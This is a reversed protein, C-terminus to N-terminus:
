DVKDGPNAATVAFVESPTTIGAHVKAAGSLRLPRMGAKLAERRLHQGDCNDVILNRLHEDLTMIEFIGVRGKFGTHRCEDCGVPVYATKPARAKHPATLAAWENPDLPGPVRCSPCLTRVLRQAAVGLLAARLLFPAVGLDLLRTISSPADNTHLTTLVLHGTMAAQLAVDATERDRIEGVMIIDPDQRMLTRIGSSFDVGISPQVAMQNLAADVMEIPDEITCVNLEPRALQKLTSYLTTTKGSGTPGTVIMVGNPASTLHQWQQLEEGALGLQDTTRVLVEPDFIRMVLKEGFTTPMTSLRLEVEHGHPPRTKVRGDQPRRREIVDMRGLSKLRSVMANMVGTKLSHVLHMVGDIRFRINGQDRRPELHIDSARQEFAFQLLWDVIRVVHRDDAEPEGTAESVDVLAERNIVQLIQDETASATAGVLSHSVAYFERLYREVSLPNSIVWRFSLKLLGSLEEEWAAMYPEASAVTVVNDRVSVPLIQYRKAYAYSMVDTVTTVDIRLPDIRLYPIGCHDALWRTLKELDLAIKRDAASVWGKESIIVLPHRGDDIATPERLSMAQAPTLLGDNLLAPVVDALTIWREQNTINASHLV